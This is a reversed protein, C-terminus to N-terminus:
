TRTLLTAQGLFHLQKIRLFRQLYGCKSIYINLWFLQHDVLGTAQQCAFIRSLGLILQLTTVNPWFSLHNRLKLVLTKWIKTLFYVSNNGRYKGNASLPDIDKRISGSNILAIPADTWGGKMKLFEARQSLLIVLNISSRAIFVSCEFKHASQRSSFYLAIIFCDVRKVGLIASKGGIM